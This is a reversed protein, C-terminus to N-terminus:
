KFIRANLLYRYQHGYPSQPLSTGGILSSLYGPCRKPSDQGRHFTDILDLGGGFSEIAEKQTFCEDHISHHQKPCRMGYLAPFVRRGHKSSYEPAFTFFVIDISYCFLYVIILRSDCGYQRFGEM